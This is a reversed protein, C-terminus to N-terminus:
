IIVLGPQSTIEGQGLSHVKGRCATCLDYVRVADEDSRILKSLKQLMKELEPPTLYVEFVSKQARDGLSELYKAVKLRRKDNVVDYVVVYFSREM